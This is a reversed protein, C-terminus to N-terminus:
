NRKGSKPEAKHSVNSCASPNVGAKRKRKNECSPEQDRITDREEFGDGHLAVDDGASKEGNQCTNREEAKVARRQLQQEGAEEGPTEKGESVADEAEFKNQELFVVTGEVDENEAGQRIQDKGCDGPNTRDDPSDV